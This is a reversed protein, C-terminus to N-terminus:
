LIKKRTVFLGALALSIFFILGGGLPVPKVPTPEGEVFVTMANSPVKNATVILLGSTVTDPVKITIETNTWATVNDTPIRTGSISVNNTDSARKGVGPDDGFYNGYIILTDGHSVTYKSLSELAPGSWATTKAITSAKVTSDDQAVVAVTLTNSTNNATGAPVTTTATVVQSGNADLTVSAPIASTDDWGLTSSKSINFTRSTDALNKITFSYTTSDGPAVVKEESGERTVSVTGASLTVKAERVLDGGDTVGLKYDGSDTFTTEGGFTGDNPLGDNHLGDDYLTLPTKGTGDAKVLYFELTEGDWPAAIDSATYVVTTGLGPEGPGGPATAPVLGPFTVTVLLKDGVGVATTSSDFDLSEVSLCTVSVDYERDSETNVTWSGALLAPSTIVYMTSNGATTIAVGETEATMTVGNPDLLSVIGTAGTRVDFIVVLKTVSSDVMFNNSATGAAFHVRQIASSSLAEELIMDTAESINASSVAFYLGSTGYSLEEGATYASIDAALAHPSDLMASDFGEQDFNVSNQQCSGNVPDNCDAALDYSCTGLITSHLKCGAGILNSLTILMRGADGHSSADTMWWVDSKPLKAAANDLAGYGEEPCDGGGGASLNNVWTTIVDPDVTAGVNTVYDKYTTLHYKAFTGANKLAAIKSTLTSKVSAIEDWMSGTDDVVFALKQPIVILTHTWTHDPASVASAHTITKTGNWPDHILVNASDDYGYLVIFHGGGGTWGYRMIIPSDDDIATKVADWSLASAKNESKAGWNELIAQLSGAKGYMWNPQNCIAGGSDATTCCNAAGWANKDRAWNAMACQTPVTISRTYGLVMYSSGAWCWNTEEQKAYTIDLSKAALALSPLLLAMALFAALFYRAKNLRM